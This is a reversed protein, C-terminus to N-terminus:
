SRFNLPLPIGAPLRCRPLTRGMRDRAALSRRLRRRRRLDRGAGNARCAEKFLDALEARRGQRVAPRISWRKPRAMSGAPRGKGPRSLLSSARAWGAGLEVAAIGVGGAAGLVLTDGKKIKARDKLAHHSTGYTMLFAAAEDHPMSDPIKVARSADLAVQQAM